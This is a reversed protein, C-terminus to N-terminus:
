SVAATTTDTATTPMPPLKPRLPPSSTTTIGVVRQHKNLLPLCPKNLPVMPKNTPIAPHPEHITLPSVNGSKNMDPEDLQDGDIYDDNSNHDFNPTITHDDDDDDLADLADIIDVDDYELTNDDDNDDIDDYDLSNDDHKNHLLINTKNDVNNHLLTHRHVTTTNHLPPCTLRVSSIASKYQSQSSNLSSKPQYSPPTPKPPSTTTDTMTSM